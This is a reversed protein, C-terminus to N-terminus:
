PFVEFGQRESPTSGLLADPNVGFKFKAAGGPAASAALPGPVQQVLQQLMRELQYSSSTMKLKGGRVDDPIEM